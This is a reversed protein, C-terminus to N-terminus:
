NMNLLIKANEVAQKSLSEGSLMAAIEKIRTEKNLLDVKTITKNEVDQKYVKFHYNALSAVQALHTVSIVQFEDAIKKMIRAMKSAIEGSVGTDIEDFIITDILNTKALVSKLALMLRSFEGGSAIKELMQIDTSINASFYFSINDFGNVSLENHKNNKVVFRASPMGLEKLLNVIETEFKEFCSERLFSIENALDILMSTQQNLVKTLTELKLEYDFNTNLYSQYEAFKEKLEKINAVQHRQLSKILLDYRLNLESLLKPDLEAKDYDTNLQQAIDDIEIQVSNLRSIVNASNKYKNDIKNMVIKFEKIQKYISFDHHYLLNIAELLSSKITAANNLFLLNQELEDLEDDEKLSINEIQEIQFKYYELEKAGEIIKKNLEEIENKLEKYERFLNQYDKVKDNLGAITDIVQNRFTTQSLQVNAQQQHIDILHEGIIKLTSLAVPTDNIFARSKGEILIERRIITNQEYDVDNDVFIKKLKDHNEIQFIAEVICKKDKDRILDIDARKGLLLALADLVISKGSGTEGTIVTFGRNFNIEVNEILLYNKIILSKLM